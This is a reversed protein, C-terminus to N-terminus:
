TPFIRKLESEANNGYDLRGWASLWASHIRRPNLEESSSRPYAIKHEEKKWGDQWSFVVERFISEGGHCPKILIFLGRLSTPANIIPSIESDEIDSDGGSQTHYVGTIELSRTQAFQDGAEIAKDIGSYRENTEYWHETKGVPLAADIYNENASGILLGFAELPFVNLGHKTIKSIAKRSINLM